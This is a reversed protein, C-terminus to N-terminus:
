VGSAAIFGSGTGVLQCSEGAVLFGADGRQLTLESGTVEGDLVLVIRASGVAPLDIPQEPATDFHWVRFEPENSPYEVLGPAIAVPEVLAPPAPDFSVVRVLEDVDIYKTTLGGRVVNDSNALVEIGTGKLYCHLNGAALHVAEGPQLLVRNMLLGAIVGPDDPYAKQLELATRAFSGLEGEDNAHPLAAEVIASINEHNNEDRLVALFVEALGAAGRRRELPAILSALQASLGLQNFLEWTRQPDRFGCLAHYETLAIVMEPKPWDDKYTRERATLAIGEANERAFGETAQQRTPHSQLSLPAAAALIKLLFPLRDGFASRSVKGLEGPHAALEADLAHGDALTSPSSAHAGLWYEAVPEGTLPLGLIGPISDISGWEYNQLTGHLARM